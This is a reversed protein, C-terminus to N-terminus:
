IAIAIQTRTSLRFGGTVVQLMVVIGVTCPLQASRVTPQMVGSPMM